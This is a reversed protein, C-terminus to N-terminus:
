KKPKSESVNWLPATSFYELTIDGRPPARVADRISEVLAQQKLLYEMKERACAIRTPDGRQYARMLATDARAIPGNLPLRQAPKREEAGPIERKEVIKM